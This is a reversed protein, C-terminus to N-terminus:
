FPIRPEYNEEFEKEEEGIEFPWHSLIGDAIGVYIFSILFLIVATLFVTLFGKIFSELVTIIIPLGIMFSLITAWISWEFYSAGEASIKFIARRIKDTLKM